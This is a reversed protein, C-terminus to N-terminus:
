RYWVISEFDLSKVRDFAFLEMQTDRYMTLHKRNITYQSSEYSITSFPFYQSGASYPIHIILAIANEENVQGGARMKRSM